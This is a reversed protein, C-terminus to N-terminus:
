PHWQRVRKKQAKEKKHAKKALRKNRKERWKDLKPPLLRGIVDDDSAQFYVLTCFEANILSHNLEGFSSEKM